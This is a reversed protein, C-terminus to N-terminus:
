EGDEDEGRPLYITGGHEEVTKIFEEMTTGALINYKDTHLWAVARKNINEVSVRGIDCPKMESWDHTEFYLVKHKIEHKIYRKESIRESWYTYPEGANCEYPVDNWDDGWQKEFNDTFWAKQGEIYCLKYEKM